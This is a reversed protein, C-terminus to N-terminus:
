SILTFSEPNGPLVLTSKVRNRSIRQMVKKDTKIGQWFCINYIIGTVAAKNEYHPGTVLTDRSHSSDLYIGKNIDVQHIWSKKGLPM